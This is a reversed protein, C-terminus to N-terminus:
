RPSNPLRRRTSPSTRASCSGSHRIRAAWVGSPTVRAGLSRIVQLQDFATVADLLWVHHIKDEDDAYDFTPNLSTSDLRITGEFELATLVAEEFTREEAPQGKIWDYAYGGIGVITKELPVDRARERLVKAFWPLSAIPGPTGTSWHEDYAMLIVLDVSAAIKRYDFATDSAPVNVSVQLGKSHFVASIEALLNRFGPQAKAPINEFDISIGAYGHSQVYDLLQTVLHARAKPDKLVKGLKAGEWESGNWNNVLPVISVEPRHARIYATAQATREPDNERLTGDADKLHLWEGIVMDLKDLNQRLSLNSSDDWNVFFGITLSHGASTDLPHRPRELIQQLGREQEKQLKTTAENLARERRNLPHTQTSSAAMAPLGHAGRPLFSAGPLAQAPLVPSILISVVLAGLLASLTLWILLM